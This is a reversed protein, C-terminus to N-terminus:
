FFSAAPIQLAQSQKEELMAGTWFFWGSVAASPPPFFVKKAPKLKRNMKLCFM